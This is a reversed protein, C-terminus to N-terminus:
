DRKRKLTMLATRAGEASKFETPRRDDGALCLKLTDDALDYIGPRTKGDAATLTIQKPSASPDLSVKFAEHHDGRTFTLTDAAIVVTLARADAEPAARGGKEGAVLQWSGELPNPAPAAPEALVATACAAATVFLAFAFSAHM